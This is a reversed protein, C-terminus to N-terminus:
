TLYFSEPWVFSSNVSEILTEKKGQLSWFLVFLVNSFVYKTDVKYTIPHKETHIYTLDQLRTRHVSLKAIKLTSGYFSFLKSYFVKTTLLYFKKNIGFM